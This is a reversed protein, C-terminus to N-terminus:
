KRLRVLPSAFFMLMLTLLILGWQSLTPVTVVAPAVIAVSANTIIDPAISNAAADSFTVNQISLATTSGIVAANNIAFIVLINGSATTQLPNNAILFTITGTAANNNHSSINGGLASYDVTNVTLIAPDYHLEFDMAVVDGAVNNTFAIPVSISNSPSGSVGGSVVLDPAAQAVMAMSFLLVGLVTKGLLKICMVLEGVKLIKEPNGM